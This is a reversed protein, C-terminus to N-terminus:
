VLYETRSADLRLFIFLLITFGWLSSGGYSFFPLPIGIVPVLGITMGINIFFHTFLVSIVGYGYIRSFVSRQREALKILRLLLFLYLGVIAFSGLFGWEEGVTCFIFDTSQAPVFKFKTQTGQLYGKGSFGGSGISILSQNLNYGTGHPDSKIGLMIEVRESQHPKLLNHFAFDVTNIYLISGLLFLYIVLMGIAKKQYIYFAFTLGALILTIILIFENGISRLVFHDLAFIIGGILLIIGLGSLALKPKRTVFWTLFFALAVLILELVINDMLLTLFFLVIMLLASVFIYPSMGERYLVFFFSFFVITSGMDPQKATLVAPLLIIAAAPLIVSLRTLEEKHNNLYSALALATAFKAFESPQLTLPGLQFWSRAGNVEKGVFLVLILLIVLVGYVGWSFFLYFRTDIIVVIIALVVAALLWIFQKGYGQTFDLIEKHEENYVAAYINFWGMIMMLLFLLVTIKDIRYWINVNRPM